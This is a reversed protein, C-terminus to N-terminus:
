RPFFSRPSREESSFGAATSSTRASAMEQRATISRRLKRRAAPMALALARAEHTTGGVEALGAGVVREVPVGLGIGDAVGTARTGSQVAKARVSLPWSM